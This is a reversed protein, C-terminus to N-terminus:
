KFGVKEFFEQANRKLRRDAYPKVKDRINYQGKRAPINAETSLVIGVSKMINYREQQVQKKTKGKTDISGLLDFLKTLHRQAIQRKKNKRFGTYVNKKIPITLFKRRGTPRVTHAKSGFELAEAYRGVEGVGLNSDIVLYDLGTYVILYSGRLRGTQKPLGRLRIFRVTQGGTKLLVQKRFQYKM